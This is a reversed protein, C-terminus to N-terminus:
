SCTRQLCNKKRVLLEHFGAMSIVINRYVEPDKWIIHALRVYVQEEVHAFIHDLDLDRM